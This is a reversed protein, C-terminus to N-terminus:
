KRRRYTLKKYTNKIFDIPAHRYKYALYIIRLLYTAPLVLSILAFLTLLTCLQSASRSANDWFPYSISNTKAASKALNPINKILYLTEFRGSLEDLTRYTGTSVINSLCSLAYNEVPNPFYVEYSTFSISGYIFTALTENIWVRPTEDTFDAYYGDPMEVVGSITCLQGSLFFSMGVVNDSGFLSWATRRDIVVSDDITADNQCGSVFKYNHFTFYDGGIATVTVNTQSSQDLKTAIGDKEGSYCDAWVRGESSLSEQECMDDLAFRYNNIESQSFPQQAAASAVIKAYPEGAGYYAAGVDNYDSKISAISVLLALFVLLSVLSLTLHRHRDLFRIM